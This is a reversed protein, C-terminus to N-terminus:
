IQTVDFNERAYQRSGYMGAITLPGPVKFIDALGVADVAIILTSFNPDAKLRDYITIDSSGGVSGGGGGSGSGGSLDYSMSTLIATKSSKGGTVDKGSKGGVSVGAIKGSKPNAASTSEKVFYETLPHNAKNAKPKVLDADSEGVFTKSVKSDYPMVDAYGGTSKGSKADLGGSGDIGSHSMGTSITTTLEDPDAPAVAAAPLMVDTVTANESVLAAAKGSKGGSSVATSESMVAAEVEESPVVEIPLATPSTEDPAIVEKGSKGAGPSPAVSESVVVAVPAVATLSTDSPLVVDKGSKGSAVPDRHHGRGGGHHAKISEAKGARRRNLSQEYYQEHDVNVASVRFRDRAVGDITYANTAFLLLALSAMSACMGRRPSSSGMIIYLNCNTGEKKQYNTKTKNNNCEALSKLISLPEPKDRGISALSTFLHFQELQMKQSYSFNM